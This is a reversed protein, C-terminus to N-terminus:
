FGLFPWVSSCRSPLTPGYGARGNRRYRSPKAFKPGSHYRAAVAEADTGLAAAALDSHVVKDGTRGADIDARLQEGTIEMNM